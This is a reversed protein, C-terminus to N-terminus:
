CGEEFLEAGKAGVMGCCGSGSGNRQFTRATRRSRQRALLATFLLWTSASGCALLSWGTRNVDPCGVQLTCFSFVSLDTPDVMVCVDEDDEREGTSDGGLTEGAVEIAERGSGEEAGGEDEDEYVSCGDSRTSM